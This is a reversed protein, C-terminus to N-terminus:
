EFCARVMWERDTLEKFGDNVMKRKIKIGAAAFSLNLNLNRTLNLAPRIGTALMTTKMIM